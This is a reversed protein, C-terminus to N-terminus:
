NILVKKIEMKIKEDPSIELLNTGKLSPLPISITLLVGDKMTYRNLLHGNYLVSLGTNGHPKIQMNFTKKCGDPLIFYFDVGGSVLMASTRLVVWKLKVAGRKKSNYSYDLWTAKRWLEPTMRYLRVSKTEEVPYVGLTSMYDNKNDVILFTPLTGILPRNVPVGVSNQIGNMDLLNCSDFLTILTFFRLMDNEMDVAVLPKSASSFHLALSDIGEYSAKESYVNATYVRLYANNGDIAHSIRVFSLSIQFCLYIAVAFSGVHYLWKRRSKVLAAPSITIALLIFPYSFSLAKGAAWFKKLLLLVSCLLLSAVLFALLSHYKNQPKDTKLLSYLYYVLILLLLVPLLYYFFMGLVKTILANSELLYGAHSLGFFGSLFCFVASTVTLLVSSISYGGTSQLSHELSALGAYLFNFFAKWSIVNKAAVFKAQSLFFNYFFLINSLLLLLVFSIFLGVWKIDNKGLTKDKYKLLFYCVSALAILVVFEVYYVIIASFVISLLFTNKISFEEGIDEKYLLLLLFVLSLSLVNVHSLSNVDVVFQGWFGCCMTLSLMIRKSRSLSLREGILLSPHYCMLICILAYPYSFKHIPISSFNSLLALVASTTYRTTILFKTMFALPSFKVLADMGANNLWPISVRNLCLAVSSYNRSDISNLRYICYQEGGILMPLALLIILLIFILNEVSFFFPILSFKKTKNQWILLFIINLTVLVLTCPGGWELVSYGHYPFFTGFLGLVSFGLTPALYLAIKASHKKNDLLYLSPAIGCLFLVSLSIIISGFENIM